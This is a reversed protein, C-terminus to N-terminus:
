RRGAITTEPIGAILADPWIARGALDGAILADPWIGGILADPWIVLEHGALEHDWAPWSTIGRRGAEVLKKEM